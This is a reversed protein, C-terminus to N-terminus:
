ASSFERELEETEILEISQHLLHAVLRLRSVVRMISDDGRRTPTMTGANIPNTTTRKGRAAQCQCRRSRGTTSPHPVPAPMAVANMMENANMALPASNPEADQCVTTLAMAIMPSADM